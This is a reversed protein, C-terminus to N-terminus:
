WYALSMIACVSGNLCTTTSLLAIEGIERRVAAVAPIKTDYDDKQEM